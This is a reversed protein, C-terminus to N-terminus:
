WLAVKETFLIIENRIQIQVTDAEKIITYMDACATSNEEATCFDRTGDGYDIKVCTENANGQIHQALHITLRFTEGITGLLVYQIFRM